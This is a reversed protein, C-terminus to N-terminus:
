FNFFSKKAFDNELGREGPVCINVRNEINIMVTIDNQPIQAEDFIAYVMLAFLSVLATFGILHKIIITFLNDDPHYFM